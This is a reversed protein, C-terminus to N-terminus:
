LQGHSLTNCWIMMSLVSLDGANHLTQSSVLEDHAAIHDHINMM